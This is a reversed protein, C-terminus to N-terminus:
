QPRSNLKQMFQKNNLSWLYEHGALIRLCNKISKPYGEKKLFFLVSNYPGFKKRIRQIMMLTSWCGRFTDKNKENTLIRQILIFWNILNTLIVYDIIKLNEREMCLGWRLVQGGIKKMHERMIVRILHLYLPVKLPSRIGAFPTFDKDHYILSNKFKLWLCILQVYQSFM